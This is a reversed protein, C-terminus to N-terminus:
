RAISSRRAILASSRGYGLGYRVLSSMMRVTLAIAAVEAVSGSTRVVM